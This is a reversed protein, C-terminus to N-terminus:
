QGAIQRSKLQQFEDILEQLRLRGGKSMGVFRIGMGVYQFTSRPREPDRLLQTYVVQGVARLSMGSVQVVIEVRRGIEFAFDAEIYCGGLSLDLIKGRSPPAVPRPRVEAMGACDFREAGRRADPPPPPPVPHDSSDM